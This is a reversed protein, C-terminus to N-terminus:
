HLCLEPHHGGIPGWIGTWYYNASMFRSNDGNGRDRRDTRPCCLLERLMALNAEYAMNRPRERSYAPECATQAMKTQKGLQRAEHGVDGQARDFEALNVLLTKGDRRTLLAV